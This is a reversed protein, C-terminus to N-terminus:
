KGQPSAGLAGVFWMAEAAEQETDFTGLSQDSSAFAEFAHPGHEIIFSGKYDGDRRNLLRPTGPLQNFSHDTFDKPKLRRGIRKELCGICLCGEGWKGTMGAKEWVAARVMYMETDMGIPGMPVSAENHEWLTGLKKIAAETEARTKAGPATNAGCDICLWDDTALGYLSNPDWCNIEGEPPKWESKAPEHHLVTRPKDTM